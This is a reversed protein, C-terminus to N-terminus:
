TDSKVSFGHCPSLFNFNDLKNDLVSWLDKSVRLMMSLSTPDRFENVDSMGYRLHMLAGKNSSRLFAIL